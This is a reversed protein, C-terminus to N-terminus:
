NSALLVKYKAKNEHNLMEALLNQRFLIKKMTISEQIISFFDIITM